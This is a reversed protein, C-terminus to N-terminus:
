ANSVDRSCIARRLVDMFQAQIREPSFEGAAAERASKALREQELPSAALEELARLLVLPNADTVCLAQDGRRAWQVASCYEPGWVVVPLGLQMADIVKSPFSTIMRRRLTADFSMVVLVAQSHQVLEVLQGSPIFGHYLGHSRFYDEAGPMWLPKPGFVELRVKNSDNLVRLANEILPGYEHLNGFYVLRLPLKFDSTCAQSRTFSPIPHIVFSNTREGLEQRMQDSVCIVVNSEIYTRRFQREIHPRFAVPIEPFDPWWDHFITVLPLGAKRAARAAAFALDGHAITLVIANKQGSLVREIWVDAWRGNVWAHLYEPLRCCHWRTLLGAVRRGLGWINALPVPPSLVEVEFKTGVAELHRHIVAAGGTSPKAPVSSIYIIIPKEKL